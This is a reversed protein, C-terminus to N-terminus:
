DRGGSFRLAAMLLELEAKEKARAVKDLELV